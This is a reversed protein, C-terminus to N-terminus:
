SHINSFLLTLSILCKELYLMASVDNVQWINSHEKLGQTSAWLEGVDNVTSIKQENYTLPILMANEVIQKKISDKAWKQLHEFDKKLQEFLLGVTCFLANGKNNQIALFYRRQM